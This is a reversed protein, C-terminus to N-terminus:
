VSGFGIGSGGRSSPDARLPGVRGVRRSGRLPVPGTPSSPGNFLWFRGTGWWEDWWFQYSRRSELCFSFSGGSAGGRDLATVSAVWGALESPIRVARGSSVRRDPFHTSFWGGLRHRSAAASCPVPGGRRQRSIVGTPEGLRNTDRIVM